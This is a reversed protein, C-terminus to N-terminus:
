MEVDVKDIRGGPTSARNSGSFDDPRDRCRAPLRLDKWLRGNGFGHKAVPVDDEDAHRLVRRQNISQQRVSRELHQVILRKLLFGDDTRAGSIYGLDVSSTHYLAVAQDRHEQALTHFASLM